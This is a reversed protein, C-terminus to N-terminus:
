GPNRRFPHPFLFTPSPSAPSLVQGQFPFRQMTKGGSYKASTVSEGQFPKRNSDHQDLVTSM